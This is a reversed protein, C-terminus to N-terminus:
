VAPPHWCWHWPEFMVGHRNGRPYSMVFGFEAAHATLWVFASTLEFSAEAAPEGECSIDIACGSHHESYGPAANVSLIADISMGRALKRAIIAHQYHVSRYGSIAQLNLNDRTAAARMRQWAHAAAPLLWLPRRYRDFGALQLLAPEPIIPLDRQDAYNPAIGLAAIGSAPSSERAANERRHANASPVLGLALLADTYGRQREVNHHLPTVKSAGVVALFRGDCKRRLVWEASAMVRADRSSRARLLPAPWLEIEPRNIMHPHSIRM